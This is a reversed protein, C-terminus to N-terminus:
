QSLIVKGRTLDFRIVEDHGFTPSSSTTFEDALNPLLYPEAASYNVQYGLDELGGITLESLVTGTGLFGTMLENDFTVERWHGERTGAGGTNAAPVTTEQPFGATSLFDQYTSIASAGTYRPDYDPGNPDVGDAVGGSLYGNGNWLTGIGLVHGMEHLIVDFLTGEEELSALDATDFRMIGYVPLPFRDGNTGLSRVICPGASGLVAGPGDIPEGAASIVLDDVVGNFVPEGSCSYSSPLNSGGSVENPLDSTIVEAWRNAADVFASQQAESLLDNAFVVVIDFRDPNDVAITPFLKGQDAGAGNSVTFEVQYFGPSAFEHSVDVLGGPSCNFIEVPTGDGYNVSCEIAESSSSFIEYNITQGPAAVRVSETLLEIRPPEGPGPPPRPTITNSFGGAEGVAFASTVLVYETGETLFEAFGSARNNGLDDNGAVVNELPTEPNFPARYLHLYGDYDQQSAIDYFATSEATFTFADFAVVGDILSPGAGDPRQFTPAGVTTGEYAIQGPPPPPPPPLPKAWFAGSRAKFRSRIRNPVEVPETVVPANPDLAARFISGNKSFSYSLGDATLYPREVNSGEFLPIRAGVRGDYFVVEEQEGVSEKFLLFSSNFETSPRGLKGEPATVYVISGGAGVTSFRVIGPAGLLEVFAPGDAVFVVDQGSGSLSPGFQEIAGAGVSIAFTEVTIEGTERNLQAVSYNSTGSEEDFGQWAHVTGDLSMSVSTQDEVGEALVYVERPEGIEGQLDLLFVDFNGEKNKASFLVLAGDESVSVSEIERRGYYISFAFGLREKVKALQISYFSSFWLNTTEIYAVVGQSVRDASSNSGFAKPFNHVGKVSLEDSISLEVSKLERVDANPLTQAQDLTNDDLVPRGSAGNAYGTLLVGGALVLGLFSYKKLIHVEGM